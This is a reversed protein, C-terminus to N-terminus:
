DIFCDRIFARLYSQVNTDASEPLEGFDKNYGWNGLEEFFDRTNDYGLGRMLANNVVIPKRSKLVKAAYDYKKTSTPM